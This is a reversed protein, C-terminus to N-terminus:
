PMGQIGVTLRPAGQEAVIDKVVLAEIMMATTRQGMAARVEPVTRLDVRLLGPFPELANLFQSGIATTALFYDEVPKRLVRAGTKRFDVLTLPRESDRGAEFAVFM